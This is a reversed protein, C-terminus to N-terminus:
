DNNGRSTNNSPTEEPHALLHKVYGLAEGHSTIEGTAQAERVAEMLEGIKHGPELCFTSILDHGSILKPPAVLSEEGAHQELIYESTKAHERWDPMDLFPGRTALHDALNLFLIDTGADGTDRFYRYIARRSPLEYHSMQSPRLHHTVMLEVLKIERSSFRLRELIGSVVKAGEVAHGLFRARGDEDITRTQPKAIDHLLAALKLLSGRTSGSGIERAFHESLDQSWPVVALADEGTYEWNGKRLLYEIAAVTQLSHDFVEWFHIFPQSVGKTMGLEPIISTLLGMDDLDALYKSTQPQAFLRLMEEHIREGAVGTVLHCHQRILMETKSDISFGLEAALRIARLLRAADSQFINDSVARIIGHQLDDYGKFPDILVYHSQLAVENGLEIAMADITFDRQAMDQEITETISSFDLEWKVKHSSTEKDFLVVRAISNLEDLPVFKGGLADALRPIIEMADATIAIDIDATQRKLLMDRVFGGVLYPKVGEKTLFRAVRTLLSSVEPAIFLELEEM